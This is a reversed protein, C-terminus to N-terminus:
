DKNPVPYNISVYEPEEVDADQNIVRTLAFFYNVLLNSFRPLTEPVSKGSKDVLVLTRVVKKSLSRAQHILAVAGTGRPLVFRKKNDVVQSKFWQYEKKLVQIDEEFIGCKGRISGNLHFIKPQLRELSAKVEENNVSSLALGVLTCLEDTQIEFDCLPSDEFIYPYALEDIDGSFKITM